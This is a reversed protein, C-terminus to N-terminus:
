PLRDEHVYFEEAIVNIRKVTRYYWLFIRTEIFGSCLRIVADNYLIKYGVIRFTM